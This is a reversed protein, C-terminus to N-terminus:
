VGLPDSRGGGGRGRACWFACTRGALAISDPMDSLSGHRFRGDCRATGHLLPGALAAEARKRL